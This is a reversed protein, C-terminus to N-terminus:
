GTTEQAAGISLHGGIGVLHRVQWPSRHMQTFFQSQKVDLLHNRAITFPVCGRLFTDWDKLVWIYEHKQNKRRFTRSM